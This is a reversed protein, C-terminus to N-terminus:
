ASCPLQDNSQKGNCQQQNRWTDPFCTTVRSDHVHVDYKKVKNNIGFDELIKSLASTLAAGTHSRAVEVIDLLMAILKGESAFHITAAIYAKINPSTWADTAFSLARDYDQLMKAIRQRCKAFVMKVDRSVTIKSPLYYGLHGTKMLKKLGRGKVIQFPRM